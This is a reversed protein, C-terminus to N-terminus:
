LFMMSAVHQRRCIRQIAFQGLHLPYVLTCMVLIIRFKFKFDLYYLNTWLIIQTYLSAVSIATSKFDSWIRELLISCFHKM